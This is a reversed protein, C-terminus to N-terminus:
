DYVIMIICRCSAQVSYHSFSHHSKKQIILFQSINKHMTMIMIMMMMTMTMMMILLLCSFFYYVHSYLFQSSDKTTELLRCFLSNYTRVRNSRSIFHRYRDKRAENLLYVLFVYINIRVRKTCYISWWSRGRSAENLLYVM